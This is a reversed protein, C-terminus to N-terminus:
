GSGSKSITIKLNFSLTHPTGMIWPGPGFTRAAGKGWISRAGSKNKDDVNSTPRYSHEAELERRKVMLSPLAWLLHSSPLSHFIDQGQQSNFGTHVARLWVSDHALHRGLTEAWKTDCRRWLTSVPQAEWGAEHGTGPVQPRNKVKM